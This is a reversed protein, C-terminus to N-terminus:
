KTEGLSRIIATAAEGCTSTKDRRADSAEVALLGEALLDVLRQDALIAAAVEAAATESLIPAAEAVIDAFTTM